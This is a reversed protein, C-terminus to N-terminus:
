DLLLLPSLVIAYSVGPLLKGLLQRCCGDTHAKALELLGKTAQALYDHSSAAIAESRKCVIKGRDGDDLQRGFSTGDLGGQGQM